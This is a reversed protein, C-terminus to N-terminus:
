GRLNLVERDNEHWPERESATEEPERMPALTGRALRRFLAVAVLFALGAGLGAGVGNLLSQNRAENQLADMTQSEIKLQLTKIQSQQDAIRAQQDAIQRQLPATVDLRWEQRQRQEVAQNYQQIREDCPDGVYWVFCDPKL